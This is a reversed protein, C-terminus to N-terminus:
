KNFLNVNKSKGPATWRNCRIYALLSFILNGYFTLYSVKQTQKNNGTWPSSTEQTWGPGRGGTRPLVLKNKYQM